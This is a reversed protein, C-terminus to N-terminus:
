NKVREGKTRKHQLYSWRLGGEEEKDKEKRTNKKVIRSNECAIM